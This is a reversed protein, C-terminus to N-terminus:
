LAGRQISRSKRESIFGQRHSLMESECHFTASDPSSAPTEHIRGVRRCVYRRPVRNAERLSLFVLFFLNSYLLQQSPFSPPHFSPAFCSTTAVVVYETVRARSLREVRERGMSRKQKALFLSRNRDFSFRRPMM